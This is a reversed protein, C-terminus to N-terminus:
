GKKLQAPLREDNGLAVRRVADTDTPQHGVAARPAPSSVVRNSLRGLGTVEVEILDGPQMPRSNAPTGTMVVDGPMLTIHRALDAIIYDIPFLMEAIAGEQALRGNRYTRLTQKRIDIGSVIGPGVPCFGDGGKVRLMSGADTDRMDQLGVDNGPAFGALHDWVQERAINRTVKGIIAAVEGEYNLYQYGEPRVLEGNHSNIATVPKQFYTPTAPPKDAGTFEYLRSMYNLHICIIKTPHCPPLYTVEREAVIRGDGLQLEGNEYNAWYASGGYVVHRLESRPGDLVSM